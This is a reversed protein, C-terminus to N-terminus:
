EDINSAIYLYTVGGFLPIYKVSKFQTANQIESAFRAASPFKMSSDILYKYAAQKKFLKGILPIFYTMIGFYIAKFFRNEPQGFELICIKDKTVRAMEALAKHYNEVNRIGYSISSVDYSKDSYPLNMVDQVSWEITDTKKKAYELMGASFDTGTVKSSPLDKKILIAIDGTGTACDLVSTPNSKTINNVLHKKWARHIGLSLVDNILDYSGSINNFMTKIAVANPM